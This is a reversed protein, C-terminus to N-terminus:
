REALGDVVMVAREMGDSHGLQYIYNAFHVLQHTHCFMETTGAPELYKSIKCGDAIELIQERTLEPKDKSPTMAKYTTRTAEAM